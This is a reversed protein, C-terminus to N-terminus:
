MLLLDRVANDIFKTDVANLGAGAYHGWVGPIVRLEANQMFKVEYEEDSVPYYLDQQAPMVIAKARISALAKEVSGEFGQTLGINGNQWTWLMTLLNNPDRRDLFFGEWFGVLFDELSSYGMERWVENWYFSQSFGWGAYVRAAARLGKTPIKEYWGDQYLNDATLAAKVGELFVFNHPSTRASGCFPLIREVMDPFSTAWQFAQSAGMAWGIVLKLRRIGFKETVLKYQARVNDEVRIKPFRAKNYPPPCNSPSTSLGNGLMNPVIIFYKCPDLGMGPGILWDNEWHRASFWSPYVIANSRDENMTGWTKYALKAGRLTAGERLVFDGMEFFSYAEREAITMLRPDLNTPLSAGEVRSVKRPVRTVGRDVLRKRSQLLVGSPSSTGGAIPSHVRLDEIKSIGTLVMGTGPEIIRNKDYWEWLSTYVEKQFNPPVRFAKREDITMLWYSKQGHLTGSEFDKVKKFEASMSEWKDQCQQASRQVFRLWCFDEISQWKEQATRHKERPAGKGVREVDERKASQLALMEPVSWPGKKYVREKREVGVGGTPTTPADSDEVGMMMVEEEEQGGEEGLGGVMVMRKGGNAVGEGEVMSVMLGERDEMGCVEDAAEMAIRRVDIGDEVMEGVRGAAVEYEMRAEVTAM